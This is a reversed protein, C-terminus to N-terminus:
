IELLKQMDDPVPASFSVREGSIPHTFTISFAHLAPRSILNTADAGYLIDALIPFGLASLHVRIQHTRGTRPHAEVLAWNQKRILVKFETESKKGRKNVVITRHKRGVNTQLMHRATRENWPPLGEVIAHYIKEVQHTEFQRNLGRHADATLAVVMVGSTVKDLRHVILVQENENELMQRLYPADAQWGDPLVPLGAPKDIVIIHKDKYLTRM